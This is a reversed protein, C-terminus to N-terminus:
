CDIKKGRMCHFYFLNCSRIFYPKRYEYFRIKDRDYDKKKVFDSFNNKVYNLLEELSNYKHIGKMKDWSAEFWFWHYNYKFVLFTHCINKGDERSLIFITKYDLKKKRFFERELECMEWCIAYGSKRIDKVKQMRFSKTFNADSLHKFVRNERDHWGYKIDKVSEYFEEIEDM